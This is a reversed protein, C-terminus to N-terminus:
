KTAEPKNPYLKFLRTCIAKITEFSVRIIGLRNAFIAYIEMDNYLPEDILKYSVCYNIFITCTIIENISYRISSPISMIDNLTIWCRKRLLSDFQNEKCMRELKNYIETIEFNFDLIAAMEIETKNISVIYLDVIEHEIEINYNKGALHLIKEIPRQTECIKCALDIASSMLVVDDPELKSESKAVFYIHLSIALTRQPLYLTRCISLLISADKEYIGSHFEDDLCLDIETYSM